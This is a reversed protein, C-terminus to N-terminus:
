LDSILGSFGDEWSRLTPPVPLKVGVRRAKSLGIAIRKSQRDFAMNAKGAYSFAKTKPSVEQVYSFFYNCATNSVALAAAVGIVPEWNARLQTACVESGIM